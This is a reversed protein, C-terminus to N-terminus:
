SKVRQAVLSFCPALRALMGSEIIRQLIMARVRGIVSDQRLSLAFQLSSAHELSIIRICANFDPWHWYAQIQSLGTEQLLAAYKAPHLLGKYKGKRLWWTTGYLELYLYGGHRVAKALAPLHSPEPDHAVVVDYYAEQGVAPPALLTLSNSFLRLSNVLEGEKAGAYAVRELKPDPLLFRWDVRRSAQLYTEATPSPEKEITAKLM